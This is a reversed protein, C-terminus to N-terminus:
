SQGAQAARQNVLATFGAWLPAAVSTGGINTANLGNGYKVFVNDATLAVDPLNRRTTSGHNAAMNVNSQWYPIANSPSIGGSSGAGGGWNWVTESVPNTATLTTGGVQVINTSSSPQNVLTPDDVANNVFADSDGSANFFTQGQAAMQKFIQEMTPSPGGSWGWSSSIQNAANDTAIRNLVDEPFFNTPNGEYLIIKS